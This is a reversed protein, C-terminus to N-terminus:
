MENINSNEFDYFPMPQNTEHNPANKAMYSKIIKSTVNPPILCGGITGFYYVITIYGHLWTVKVVESFYGHLWTVM